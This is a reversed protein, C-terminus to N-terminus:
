KYFQNQTYVGQSKDIESQPIPLYENKNAVFNGAALWQHIKGENKFYNNLVTPADGWRVLDYFRQGELCLELRRELKLARMADTANLTTPYNGIRYNAAPTGDAFKVINVPNAARTRVQNIYGIGTAINGLNIEAEARWLLVDSYRIIPVALAGLAWPFGANARYPSNPSILDKKRVYPGYTDLSRCYSLDEIATLNDKWPIGPRGIAHDLRPDVATTRDNSDLRPLSSVTFGLPLGSADVQFNNVLDQSPRHFGDGNTYGAGPGAPACLLDGWNLTGVSTGDKVSTAIAFVNEGDWNHEPLSYIYELNDVLKYNGSNIVLDTESKVGAWNKSGDYMYAKAMFAHAALSTVRNKDTQVAPLSFGAQFDAEVKAWLAANSMDNKVKSVEALDSNTEDIWPVQYFHKLLDFYLYGRLVKMEALRTNKLPYVSSDVSILAKIANNINAIAVYNAQWKDFLAANDTSINCLELLTYEQIDGTGGGGKYADDSRVDGFSWNSPPHMFTNGTSPFYTLLSHYGMTVLGDIGAPTLLQNQTLLGQPKEDLFKKCSSVLLTCGATIYLMFKKM